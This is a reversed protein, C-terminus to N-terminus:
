VSHALFFYGPTRLMAYICFNICYGFAHFAIIDYFISCTTAEQMLVCSSVDLRTSTYGIYCLSKSPQLQTVSTTRWNRYRTRSQNRHRVNWAGGSFIEGGGRPTTPSIDDDDTIQWVVPGFGRGFRNRWMTRDLAEEKL